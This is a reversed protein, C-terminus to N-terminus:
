RINTINQKGREKKKQGLHNLGPCAMAEDGGRQTLM